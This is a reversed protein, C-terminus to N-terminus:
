RELRLAFRSLATFKKAYEAVTSDGQKLQSFEERLREMSTDSVYEELFIQKFEECTLETGGLMAMKGM